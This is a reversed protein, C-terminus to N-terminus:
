VPIHIICAIFTRISMPCGACTCKKLFVIQSSSFLPWSTLTVARSLQVKLVKAWGGMVGKYTLAM